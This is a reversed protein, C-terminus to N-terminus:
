GSTPPSLLQAVQLGLTTCKHVDFCKQVGNTTHFSNGRSHRSNPIVVM